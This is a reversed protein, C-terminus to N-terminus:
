AILVSIPSFRMIKSLLMWAVAAITSLTVGGWGIDMSWSATFRRAKLVSRDVTGGIVGDEPGDLVLLRGTARDQRKCHIITLTFLAFIASLITRKEFSDDFLQFKKLALRCLKSGFIYTFQFNSKSM